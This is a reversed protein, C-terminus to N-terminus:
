SRVADYNYRIHIRNHHSSEVLRISENLSIFVSQSLQTTPSSSVNIAYSWIFWYQYYYLFLLKYGMTFIHVDLQHSVLLSKHWQRHLHTCIAVIHVNLQHSVWPFTGSYFYTHVCQSSIHVSSIHCEPVHAVTSTLTYVNHHYTCQASTVSLSIHWQLLLHTCITFIHVSLQHSVWPFTGSYCYTHVCQPSIYMSSIHCEPAHAVTSTLTYVNYLYTSQASTVSLSM